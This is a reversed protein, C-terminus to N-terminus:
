YLTEFSMGVTVDESIEIGIVQELTLNKQKIQRLFCDKM